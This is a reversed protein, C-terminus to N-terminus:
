RGGFDSEWGLPYPNPPIPQRSSWEIQYQGDSQLQGIRVTKWLHNNDLDVTVMGEPADFTQGKITLQVLDISDNGALSVAKKWLYVGIYAAEMPDSVVQNEGYRKKFDNVFTHNKKSDISQFYNWCSYSGAPLDFSQAETEGVSLSMTPTTLNRKKMEKFLALNSSGNITNLIVDPKSKEIRDLIWDVDESGLPLYEEGLVQGGILSLVERIFKNATRPFIYDSGVLFFKKGLHDFCWRTAPIIQQNPAAGTYIINPSKELGEYQVPYFLLHNEREVVPLVAKRSASTWCGFIVSVQKNILENAKYQFVLPDSEGDMLIPEIKRGLVGGDANIQEIALLTADVVPKESEAMTGTLSHLIGVKIPPQETLPRYLFLAGIAILLLTLLGIFFYRM